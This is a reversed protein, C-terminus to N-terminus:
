LGSPLLFFKGRGITQNSKAGPLQVKLAPPASKMSAFFDSLSFSRKYELVQYKGSKLSALEAAKEVADNFYGLQDILGYALAQRGSYIRGDGVPSTRLMEESIKPRRESVICVFEGYV